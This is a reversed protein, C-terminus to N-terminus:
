PAWPSTVGGERLLALLEDADLKAAADAGELVADVLARKEEHLRLIQEEITGLSVLRVVTVPKTQGIRHARDSAQDEVAPNWWPDLHIVNDAATLNLGTGGAKLSILFWRFEGAQFRDILRQREGAPTSGDLYACPWGREAFGQRVFELHRTFQSFILARQDAAELGELLEFLRTHKSSRGRYNADAMGPHSALLRLRTLAALVHFRREAAAAHVPLSELQAVASLRADQYRALEDASLEIDVRVDTRPPLEPAVEAKTRRLVFPRIIRALNGARRAREEPDPSGSYRQRFAEQSGLLGPTVAEFIAWLEGLHNEIPTGSLAVKWDAAIARVVQSRQTDANKIVQAEDVVLTHFTCKRFREAETVLLGYSVILVDGPGLGQVVEARRTGAAGFLQPRLSPAFRELERVWNHTVSTPAVVLAPGSGGRAVLAAVTQLTKGLGMDDALVAGAGWDALRMLWQYGERQYPRLKAKLARPVAFSKKGVSEIRAVLQDWASPAELAEVDRLGESVALVAPRPVVVHGSRRDAYGELLALHRELAQDLELWHGAEVELWRGERRADLLTALTLETKGLNLAGEVEFWDRKTTIQLRLKKGKSSQARWAGGKPWIVAVDAREALTALLAFCAERGSVSFSWNIVQQGALEAALARAVQLEVPLDRVVGLLTREETAVLIESWGDGPWYLEARPHPRILIECELGYHAPLVRVVLAAQGAVKPTGASPRLPLPVWPALREAQVLLEGQAEPPVPAGARILESAARWYGDPVMTVFARGEDPRQELVLDDREYPELEDVRTLPRGNLVPWIRLGGEVEESGLRAQGRELVLPRREADAQYIKPHGILAELLARRRRRGTPGFPHEEQAALLELRLRETAELRPGLAELLVQAKTPKPKKPGRAGPEILGAKVEGEPTLLWVLEDEPAAPTALQAQELRRLSRAWPPDAYAEILEEPRSGDFVRRLAADIASLVHVCAPGVGCGCDWTVPGGPQAVELSVRIESLRPGEELYRFCPPVKGEFHLTAQPAPHRPRTLPRVEGRALLLSQALGRLIPAQPLARENWAVEQQRAEAVAEAQQLLWRWIREQGEEPSDVGKPRGESALTLFKLVTLKSPTTELWTLISLPVDRAPTPTADVPGHLLDLVEREIAWAVLAAETKLRAERKSSTRAPPSRWQLHALRIGAALVGRFSSWAPGAFRRDGEELLTKLTLGPEVGISMDLKARAWPPLALRTDRVKQGLFPADREPDFVGLLAGLEPTLAGVM